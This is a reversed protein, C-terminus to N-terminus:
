QIFILKNIASQLSSLSQNERRLIGTKIHIHFKVAPDIKFQLEPQFLNLM